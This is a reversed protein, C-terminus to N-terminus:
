EKEEKVKEIHDISRTKAGVIENTEPEQDSSGISGITGLKKKM